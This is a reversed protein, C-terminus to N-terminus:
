ENMCKSTWELKNKILWQISFYELMDFNGVSRPKTWRFIGILQFHVWGWPMWSTYSNTEEDSVTKPFNVWQDDATFPHRWISLEFIVTIWLCDVHSWDMLEHRTFHFAALKYSVFGDNLCNLKLGNSRASYDIVFTEEMPFSSGM